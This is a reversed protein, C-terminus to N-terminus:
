KGRLAAAGGNAASDGVPLKDVFGALTSRVVSV